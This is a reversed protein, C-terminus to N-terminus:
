LLDEERQRRLLFVLAFLRELIRAVRRRAGKPLLVAADRACSLQVDKHEVHLLDTAFRERCVSRRQIIQAGEAEGRHREIRGAGVDVRRQRLDVADPLDAARQREVNVAGYDLHVIEGHAFREAGGGLKGLPGDGIFVRRLFFFGRQEVDLDVHAARANQRRGAHEPRRQKGAGRDAAGRQVILVENGFLIDADAVRDDDALGAVDDRLDDGHHAVAFVGRGIFHRLHAGGAALGHDAFCVFSRDAADVGVAGALQQARQDVEARAVGHVAFAHAFRHQFHEDGPAEHVGRVVQEVQLLFVNGGNVAHAVFARFVQQGGRFLALLVIKGTQQEREADAMDALLGARQQCLM